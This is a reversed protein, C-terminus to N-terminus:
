LNYIEKMKKRFGFFNNSENQQLRMQQVEDGIQNNIDVRNNIQAKLDVPQESTFMNYLNYQNSSVGDFEVGFFKIMNQFSSFAYDIAADIYDQTDPDLSSDEESPMVADDVTEDEPIEEEQEKLLRMANVFAILRSNQLVQAATAPDSLVKQARSSALVRVVQWVRYPSELSAKKDAEEETMGKARYKEILPDKKSKVSSSKAKAVIQIESAIRSALDRSAPLIIVKDGAHDTSIIYNAQRDSGEKFKGDGTMTVYIFESAFSPFLNAMDAVHTSVERAFKDAADVLKKTEKFEKQPKDAYVGGQQYNSVTGKFTHFTTLAQFGERLMQTKEVIAQAKEKAEQPDVGDAILRHSLKRPDSLDYDKGKLNELTRDFTSM